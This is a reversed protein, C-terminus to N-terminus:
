EEEAEDEAEALLDAFPGHDADDAPFGEAIEEPVDISGALAEACEEDPFDEADADIEPAEDEAEADDPVPEADDLLAQQRIHDAYYAHTYAAHWKKALGKLKTMNADSIVVRNDTHIMLGDLDFIFRIASDKSSVSGDRDALLDMQAAPSQNQSIILTIPYRNDQITLVKGEELLVTEIKSRFEKAKDYYSM